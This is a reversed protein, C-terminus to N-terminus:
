NNLEQINKKLLFQDDWQISAQLGKKKKFFLWNLILQRSISILTIKLLIFILYPGQEHEVLNSIQNAYVSPGARRCSNEKFLDKDYLLYMRLFFKTNLASTLRYIFIRICWVVCLGVTPTCRRVTTSSHLNVVRWHSSELHSDFKTTPM